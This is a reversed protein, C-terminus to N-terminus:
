SIFQDKIKPELFQEVHEKRAKWVNPFDRSESTEIEKWLLNRIIQAEQPEIRQLSEAVSIGAMKGTLLLAGPHSIGSANGALFVNDNSTKFNSDYQPLWGGLAEQYGFSCNVQYFLDTIPSRGGDLCVFDVQLSKEQGEHNIVLEEVRGNGKAEIIEAQKYIPVGTSKIGELKEPRYQQTQGNLELMAKVHVGVSQLQEVVDLSFNSIGVIVTENGPLVLDRNILTQAAGITMIGPLTWKLFPVAKEYAGTAFILKKPNIPYVNQDDSVGVRGDEYFGIVRHELLQHIPQSNVEEVLKEALEFGRMSEYPSPLPELVQTQQRLQGGLERSEDVITVHLNRSALELAASLGAPGGGIILVDTNM